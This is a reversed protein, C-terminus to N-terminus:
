GLWLELETKTKVEQLFFICVYFADNNLHINIFAHLILNKISSSDLDLM